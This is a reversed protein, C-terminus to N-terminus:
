RKGSLCNRQIKFLDEAGACATNIMRNLVTRSFPKGEATGQVEVLRGSGTLAINLDVEASSDENYDLDLLIEGDVIGVSVAAVQDTLFGRTILDQKKLWREALAVAVYAGTISATRTGGDAQIVDCDVIITREGLVDLDAVSRICRGILRQIEQSRGRPGRERPTRSLTSRPLMAYEATIWGQKKGRLFPPVSDDVSANCIVHTNGVQILASGEAYKNYGPVIRVPRLKEGGRKKRKM